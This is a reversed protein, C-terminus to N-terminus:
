LQKEFPVSCSGIVHRLNKIPLYKPPKLGDITLGFQPLKLKLGKKNIEEIFSENKPLEVNVKNHEINSLFESKMTNLDNSTQPDVRFYKITVLNLTTIGLDRLEEPYNNSVTNNNNTAESSEEM